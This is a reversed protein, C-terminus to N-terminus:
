MGGLKVGTAQSIGAFKALRAMWRAEVENPDESAAPNGKRPANEKAIDSRNQQGPQVGTSLRAELRLASSLQNDQKAASAEKGAPTFQKGAEGLASMFPSQGPQNQQNEQIQQQQLAKAAASPTPQFITSISDGMADLMNDPFPM